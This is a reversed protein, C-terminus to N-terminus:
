VDYLKPIDCQRVYQLVYASSKPGGYGYPNQNSGQGFFNRIMRSLFNGNKDEKKTVAAESTKVKGGYADRAVEDWSVSEVINDNFRYWDSDRVNPRVYAYYHGSGFEGVHIVVSQLAYRCKTPDANSSDKMLGSLDLEQPFELPDNLKTTSETNWDFHFRKLHLQLIPPLGSGLLLSGKHADVKEADKEPRWGNGEAESLLEPTGFMSQLSSLVSRRQPGNAAPDTTHEQELVDLSLDLFAEDRRRERGSGDLAVIYDQYTGAYLATLEPLGVAPLLLKWFEQTDQQEWVPIGLNTCLPAVARDASRHMRDFVQRLSLLAISEDKSAQKQQQIGGTRTSSTAEEAEEDDVDSSSCTEVTSVTVDDDDVVISPSSSGELVLRKVLPIHYACQLQANIYCTNGLNQLGTSISPHHIPLSNSAAASSAVSGLLFLVDLVVATMAAVM